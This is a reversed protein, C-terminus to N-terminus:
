STRLIIFEHLMQQARNPLLTYHTEGEFVELASDALVSSANKAMELPIHSDLEGYWLRIGSYGVDELKFGWGSAMLKCEQAMGRSGQRFAERENEVLIDIRRKNHALIRESEPSEEDFNALFLDRMVQPDATRAVNGILTDIIKEILFEPLCVTFLNLLHRQLGAGKIGLLWPAVLGVGKVRHRPLLKACTLTYAAGASTALLYAGEIGLHDLLAVVDSAYEIIKRSPYPSSLGIGPRDPSIVQLQLSLAASHLQAAELRSGPMGHFYVVYDTPHAIGYIAYGLIRGDQLTFTQDAIDAM